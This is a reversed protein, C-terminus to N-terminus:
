ANKVNLAMNDAEGGGWPFLPLLQPFGEARITWGTALSGALHAVWHRESRALTRQDAM